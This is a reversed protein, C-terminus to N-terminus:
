SAGAWNGVYDSPPTSQALVRQLVSSSLVAAGLLARVRLKM